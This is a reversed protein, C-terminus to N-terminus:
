LLGIIGAYPPAVTPVVAATAEEPGGFGLGVVQAATFTAAIAKILRRRSVRLSGGSRSVFTEVREM